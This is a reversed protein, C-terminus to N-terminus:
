MDGAAKRAAEDLADVVARADGASASGAFHVIKGEANVVAVSPYLRVNFGRAVPMTRRTADDSAVVITHAYGNNTGVDFAKQIDSERVAVGYVDIDLGEDEFEAAMESIMPSYARCPACWTGWFYFVSVKGDIADNDIVTGDADKLSFTPADPLPKGAREPTRPTDGTPRPTPNERVTPRAPTPDALNVDLEFGDPVNKEIDLSSAEITTQTDIETVLQSIVLAVDGSGAIRDVRRPLRDEVGIYWRARSTSLRSANGLGGPMAQGRNYTVLVVDCLVGDVEERDLVERSEAGFEASFPVAEVLEPIMMMASSGQAGPFSAKGSRVSVKKEAADHWGLREPSAYLTFKEPESSGNKAAQGEMRVTWSLKGDEGQGRVVRVVAEGRPALAAFGGATQPGLTLKAKFQPLQAFAVASSALITAGADMQAPQAQAQVGAQGASAAAFAPMAAGCATAAAIALLCFPSAATPVRHVGSHRM